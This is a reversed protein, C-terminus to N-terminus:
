HPWLAAGPHAPDETTLQMATPSCIPRDAALLTCVTASLLSRPKDRPKQAAHREDTVHPHETFASQEFHM